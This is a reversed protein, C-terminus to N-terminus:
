FPFEEEFDIKENLIEKEPKKAKTHIPNGDVYIAKFPKTPCAFECAGCGICIDQNIEPIVLNDKYPVMYVAKTPCHESCAGCDTGETEVICNEKIFNVKGLQTLKKEELSIPLIAGSPCIESCDVCDFNCFSKFYNMHPQMMGILGYELFSPKLVQTPCASVCLHCATCSTTFNEISLSGPPCVPHQKNEPINTKRFDEIKNKGFALGTLSLSFIGTTILFKRRNNNPEKPPILKKKRRFAIKFKLADLKCSSFCDFCVVCRSYDIKKEGGHICGAKCTLSCAWCGNCSSEDISIRFLSIKSIIGLLTGVPCITNCYIRGGKIAM